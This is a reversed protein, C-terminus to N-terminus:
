IKKIINGNGQKMQKWEKKIIKGNINTEHEQKKRNKNKMKLIKQNKYYKIYYFFHKKKFKTNQKIPHINRTQFFFVFRM